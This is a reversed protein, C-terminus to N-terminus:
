RKPFQKQKVKIEFLKHSVSQESKNSGSYRNQSFSQSNRRDPSSGRFNNRYLLQQRFESYRDPLPKGSSKKTFTNKPLNQGKKM